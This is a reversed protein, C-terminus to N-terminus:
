NKQAHDDIGKKLNEVEQIVEARTLLGKRELVSVIANIQFTNAIMLEEYSVQNNNKSM